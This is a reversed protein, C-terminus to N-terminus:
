HLNKISDVLGPTFFDQYKDYLSNTAQKFQAKEAATISVVEVGESALRLKADEGDEISRHREMRAAEVAAESIIQQLEVDLTNWWKENVVISTLFLSHGTDLVTKSFENQRCPYIRPFASEGASVTGSEVARNIEGIEMSVPNMGLVAFTDRAMPNMGTRISEGTLEALSKINKSSPVCRFGGSYTFGLGRMPSNEALSALLQQGPAGELVRTAHDHDEFLFPMDLVHMDKTYKAALNTTVMQSMQISGDEMLKSLEEIRAEDNDAMAVIGNNYKEGYQTPTMIEVQVKYKDSKKNVAEQFYGAARIFLYLPDHAIVWRINIIKEM